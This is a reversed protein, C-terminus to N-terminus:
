ECPSFAKHRTSGAMRPVEGPAGGRGPDRGGFRLQCWAGCGWRDKHGQGSLRQGASAGHILLFSSAAPSSSLWSHPSHTERPGPTARPCPGTGATRRPHGLWTQPPFVTNQGPRQTEATHKPFSRPGALSPAPPQSVPSLSLAATPTWAARGVRGAPWLPPLTHGQSSAPTSSAGFCPAWWGIASSVAARPPSGGIGVGM